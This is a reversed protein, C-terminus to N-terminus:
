KRSVNKTYRERRYFIHDGYKITKEVVKWKSWKPKVYTAHYYTAGNTNDRHLSLNELIVKALDFSREWSKKEIPNKIRFPNKKKNFSFQGPENVVGCITSPHVGSEIRNFIVSVIALKGEITQNGAEYYIAKVLCILEKNTKKIYFNYEKTQIEKTQYPFENIKSNFKLPFTMFMGGCIFSLFIIDIIKRDYEIIKGITFALLNKQDGLMFKQAM